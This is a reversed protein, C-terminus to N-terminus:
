YKVSSILASHVLHIQRAPGRGFGSIWLPDRSQVLINALKIDRHIINNGHLCTLASLMQDFCDKSEQLSFKREQQQQEMDGLAVYEM